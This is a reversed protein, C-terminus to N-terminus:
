AFCRKIQGEAPKGLPNFDRNRQRRRPVDLYVVWWHVGDLGVAAVWQCYAAYYRAQAGLDVPTAHDWGYPQAFANRESRIGAEGIIFRQRPYSARLDSVRRTWGDLAAFLADVSAEPGVQLPFYTDLAVTDISRLWGPRASSDAATWNLAYSLNGRYIGRVNQVLRQWAAEYGVMSELETGLRLGSARSRRALRAFWEVLAEYSAFWAEPHRPAIAGRWADRRHLSREDLLPSLTVRLGRRRAHRVFSTLRAASPTQRRDRYVSDAAAGHQFIPV